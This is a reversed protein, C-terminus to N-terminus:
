VVRSISWEALSEGFSAGRLVIQLRSVPGLSGCYDISPEISLPLHVSSFRWLEGNPLTLIASQAARGLDDGDALECGVTHHVHFHIAFPADKALRLIKKDPGLRDSGSIHLGDAEIVIQRSHVIEFKRQYGDHSGNFVVRGNEESVSATVTKPYRIPPGGAMQALAKSEIMKSSSLGNICLTNHSATARAAVVSNDFAPLPAGGNVFIPSRGNSMEFSLCGAHAQGAVDWPPPPGADIVMVTQGATLRAYNSHRALMPAPDVGREVDASLDYALVTALEGAPTEGVGNFRALNGDGLRMLNLMSMMSSIAATLEPPPPLNRAIFCQRLPLCDLMLEVLVGANRSTHGGDPLIQDRLEEGLMAKASELEGDHGSICLMAQVLAILAQLRGISLRSERWRGSLEVLQEGLSDTIVDYVPQPADELLLPANAIWSSIRRGLVAPEWAIGRKSKAERIWATALYHAIERAEDSEVSGLHRLWGFGHLERAWQASPARLTFPSSSGKDLAAVRGAFSFQGQAVEAVFSPDVVRLDSPIITFQDAIPLGYRWRLIPLRWVKGATRAGVGRASLLAIRLREATSPESM